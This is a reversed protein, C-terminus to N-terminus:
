PLVTITVEPLIGTDLIITDESLTLTSTTLTDIYM